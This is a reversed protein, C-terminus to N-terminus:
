GVDQITPYGEGQPKLLETMMTGLMREFRGRYAQSASDRDDELAQAVAGLILIRHYQEPFVPETGGELEAPVVPHDITLDTDVTPWPYVYLTGGRVQYWGPTGLATDSADIRWTAEVLPWDDTADFVASVRTVDTPLAVSGTNATVTLGTTRTELFPWDGRAGLVERYADNLHDFWQPESIVNNDPDGFRVACRAALTEGNM